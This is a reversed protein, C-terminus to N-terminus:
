KKFLDKLAKVGKKKLEDVAKDKAKEKARSQDLAVRPSKVTGGIDFVFLLNGKEDRFLNVLDGYKRLDKMREQTGPPITLRATLDLTEDFGISGGALIDGDRSKMNWDKFIVRGDSIVLNGNWTDYHYREYKSLDIPLAKSLPSFYKSLDVQGDRSLISCRAHLSKAPTKDPAITVRGTGKIDFNGKIL